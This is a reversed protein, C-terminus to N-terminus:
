TAEVGHETGALVSAIDPYYAFALYGGLGASVLAAAALVVFFPLGRRKAPADTLADGAEPAADDIRETQEAM